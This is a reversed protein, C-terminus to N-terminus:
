RSRSCRSSAWSAASPFRIRAAGDSSTGAALIRAGTQEGRAIRDRVKTLPVLAGYSDRVTTVGYSLDIQAAELVIDDQRPQYKALTEYRDNQGGYHSLHVNTDILGPIVWKGRADIQSADAPIPVASRPGVASIRAGRILVVADAIPTGGNGDIVTGGVIAVAAAAPAQASVHALAALVASM